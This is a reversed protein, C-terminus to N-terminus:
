TYGRYQSNYDDGDVEIKIKAGSEGAMDNGKKHMLSKILETRPWLYLTRGISHLFVHFKICLNVVPHSTTDLIISLTIEYDEEHENHTGSLEFLGM